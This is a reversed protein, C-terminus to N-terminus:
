RREATWAEARPASPRDHDSPLKCDLVDPDGERDRVQCDECKLVAFRVLQQVPRRAPCVQACLGCEICAHAGLAYAEQFLGFEAHRAVLGVQIRVPCARTCRGCNLCPHEGRHVVEDAALITLGDTEHTVPAQLDFQAHGQWRGGLLIRDGASVSLGAERLLHEVPAGLVTEVTLPERLSKSSVTVLKSTRPLGERLSRGLLAAEEASLALIGAARARAVTTNGIGAVRALQLRWHADPYCEPVPRLECGPFEASLSGHLSAPVLLIVRASEPALSRLAALGALLDPRGGILYHRQVCLGPERECGFVVVTRVAPAEDEGLSEQLAKPKWPTAAGLGALTATLEEWSAKAPSGLVRAEIWEQVGSAAIEITQIERGNVAHSMGIRAVDGAITAHLAARSLTSAIEQGLKVQDGVKVCAALRPQGPLSLPIRVRVPAALKRMEGPSGTMPVRFGPLGFLRRNTM